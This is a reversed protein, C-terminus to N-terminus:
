VRPAVNKTQEEEFKSLINTKIIDRTLNSWPNSPALFYTVLDFRLFDQICEMPWMKAWDEEFKSLINTKVIDLDPIIMPQTPNSHLDSPWIKSHYKNCELLWMQPRNKKLSAWFIQRSSIDTLNSWPDPQTLIYTVLDFRLFMMNVSKPCCKKGLRRWVQDSHKNQHYGM